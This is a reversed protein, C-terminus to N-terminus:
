IIGWFKEDRRRLLRADIEIRNPRDIALCVICKLVVVWEGVPPPETDVLRWGTVHEGPSTSLARLAQAIDHAQYAMYANISGGNQEFLRERMDRAEEAVKV